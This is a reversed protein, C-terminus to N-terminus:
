RPESNAETQPEGASLGQLRTAAEEWFGLLMPEFEEPNAEYQRTWTGLDPLPIISRLRQTVLRVMKQFGISGVNLGASRAAEEMLQYIREETLSLFVESVRASCYDLYKARLVPDVSSEAGTEPQRVSGEGEHEEV